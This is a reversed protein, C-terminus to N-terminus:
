VILNYRKFKIDFWLPYLYTLGLFPSLPWFNHVSIRIPDFINDMLYEKFKNNYIRSDDWCWIILSFAWIVFYIIFSAINWWILIIFNYWFCTQFSFWFYDKSLIYTVAMYHNLELYFLLFCVIWWFHILWDKHYWKKQIKVVVQEQEKHPAM